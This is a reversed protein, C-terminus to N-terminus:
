HDMITLEKEEHVMGYFFGQVARLLCNFLESQWFQYKGKFKDTERDRVLRISRIFTQLCFAFNTKNTISSIMCLELFIIILILRPCLFPVLITLTSLSLMLNPNGVNKIKIRLM